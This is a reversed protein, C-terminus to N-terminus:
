ATYSFVGRQMCINKHWSCIHISFNNKSSQLIFLWAKQKNKMFALTVYKGM